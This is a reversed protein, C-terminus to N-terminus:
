DNNLVRRTKTQVFVAWDDKRDWRFTCGHSNCHGIMKDDETYSGFRYGGCMPCSFTEIWKGDVAKEWNIM